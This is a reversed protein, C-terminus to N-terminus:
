ARSEEAAQPRAGLGAALAETQRAADVDLATVGGADHTTWRVSCRGWGIHLDPHHNLREALEAVANALHMAQSFDDLRWHKELAHADITWGPLTDAIAKLETATLAQLALKSSQNPKSDM